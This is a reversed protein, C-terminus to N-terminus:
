STDPSEERNPGARGEWLGQASRHEKERKEWMEAVRFAPATRVTHAQLEEAREALSM